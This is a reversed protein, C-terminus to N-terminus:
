LRDPKVIEVYFTRANNRSVLAQGGRMHLPKVTVIEFRARYCPRREDFASISSVADVLEESAVLGLVEGKGRFIPRNM